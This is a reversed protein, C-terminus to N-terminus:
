PAKDERPRARDIARLVSPPLVWRVIGRESLIADPTGVLARVGARAARLKKRGEKTLPGNPTRGTSPRACAAPAQRLFYSRFLAAEEAASAAVVPTREEETEQMAEVASDPASLQVADM